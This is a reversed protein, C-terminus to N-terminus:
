TDHPVPWNEEHSTEKRLGDPHKLLRKGLLYNLKNTM